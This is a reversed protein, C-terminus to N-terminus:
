GASEPTRRSKVARRLLEILVPAVLILILIAGMRSTWNLTKMWNGPEPMWHEQRGHWYFGQHIMLAVWGMTFGGVLSALRHWINETRMYIAAGIALILMIVTLALEDNRVEDYAFIFLWPLSGYITFSLLTWDEWVSKILTVVPQFGRAWLTGVLVVGVVPMWAWWDGRVQYGAMTGTFKYVYLSVLLIFGWYPFVWRSFNKVWGVLMIVLFVGIVGLSIYLGWIPDPMDQFLPALLMALLFIVPFLLFPVLAVLIEKWSAPREKDNTDM